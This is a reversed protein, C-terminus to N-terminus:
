RGSSRADGAALLHLGLGIMVTGTFREQCAILGSHRAIWDGASGSAIALSGLLLMGTAKMTTGLIIFQLAASGVAEDVFQPLVALMFLITTPNTLNCVVGQRFATWPGTGM